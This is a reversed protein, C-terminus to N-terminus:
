AQYILIRPGQAFMGTTPAPSVYSGLLDSADDVLSIFSIRTTATAVSLTAASAADCLTGRRTSGSDASTALMAAGAVLNVPEGYGEGAGATDDLEIAFHDTLFYGTNQWLSVRGSGLHTAPGLAVPTGNSPLFSGLM